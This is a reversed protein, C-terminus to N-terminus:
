GGVRRGSRCRAILEDFIAQGLRAEETREPHWQVGVYYPRTPDSVAEVTGDADRALVTLRGANSVAQHHHSAVAGEGPAVGLAKAAEDGVVVGHVAGGPGRHRAAGAGLRDPLHQELMGGAMLTMMQMGLCIGLTPLDKRADIEQLLLMEYSQRHGHM